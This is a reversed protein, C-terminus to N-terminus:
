GLFQIGSTMLEILANQTYEINSSNPLNSSM